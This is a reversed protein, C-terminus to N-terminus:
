IQNQSKMNRRQELLVRELAARFILVMRADIYCFKNVVFEYTKVLFLISLLLMAPVAVMQVTYEALLTFAVIYILFAGLYNKGIKFVMLMSNNLHHQAQALEEAEKERLTMYIDNFVETTDRKSEKLNKRIHAAYESYKRKGLEQQLMKKLVNVM